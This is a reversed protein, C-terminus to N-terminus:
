RHSFSNIDGVDLANGEEGTLPQRLFVQSGQLPRVAFEAPQVIATQVRPADANAQGNRTFAPVASHRDLGTITNITEAAFNDQRCRLGHWDGGNRV